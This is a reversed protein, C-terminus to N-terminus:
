VCSSNHFSLYWIFIPDDPLLSCRAFLFPCLNWEFCKALFFVNSLCIYVAHDGNHMRTVRTCVTTHEMWDVACALEKRPGKLCLNENEKPDIFGVDSLQKSLLVVVTKGTVGQASFLGAM